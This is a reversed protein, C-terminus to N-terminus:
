DVNVSYKAILEPSQESIERLQKCSKVYYDDILADCVSYDGKLAFRMYCSDRRLDSTVSTCITPNETIKSIKTYCKDATREEEIERCVNENETEQAVEYFCEDMYFSFVIAGCLEVATGLDTKSLEKIREIKETLPVNDNVIAVHPTISDNFYGSSPTECDEKCSEKSEEAECVDNGCCPIIDEYVPIFNTEPGCKDITCDDKDDYFIPCQRLCAKCPGGCDTGEEGQNKVGDFCTEQGQSLAEENIVFSSTKEDSFPGYTLKAILIYTGKKVQPISFSMDKISSGLLVFNESSTHVIGGNADKINYVIRMPINDSSGSSEITRQFTIDEGENFSTKQFNLSFDITPQEAKPNAFFLFYALGAIICALVMMTVILPTLSKKHTSKLVVNNSYVQQVCENIELQNYGRQLLFSTVEQVSHGRKLQKEIYKLLAEDLMFLKLFFYNIFM